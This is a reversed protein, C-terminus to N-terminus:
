TSPRQHKRIKDSSLKIEPAPENELRETWIRVEIAHFILDLYKSIGVDKIPFPMLIKDSGIISSFREKRQSNRGDHKNPSYTYEEETINMMHKKNDSFVAVTYDIRKPDKNAIFWM